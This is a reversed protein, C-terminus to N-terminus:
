LQGSLSSERNTGPSQRPVNWKCKVPVVTVPRGLRYNERRPNELAPYSDNGPPLERPARGTDGRGHVRGCGNGRARRKAGGFKPFSKSECKLRPACWWMAEGFRIRRFAPTADAFANQLFCAVRLRESATRGLWHVQIYEYHNHLQIM